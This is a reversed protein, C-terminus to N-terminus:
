LNKHIRQFVKDITGLGDIFIVKDTEKYSNVILSTKENYIKIRNEIVEKTDDKRGEIRARGLLRKIIENNPITLVIIKDIEMNIEKLLKDLAKKQEFTRPFGDLLFGKQCDDQRLREKIIKIMIENPLLEGKKLYEDVKKGLPTNDKSYQRLIEGTSIHPICKKECIKKAQTGKGAGPPGIFVLRM